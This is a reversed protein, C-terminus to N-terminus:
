PQGGGLLCNQVVIRLPVTTAGHLVLNVRCARLVYAVSVCYKRFVHAYVVSVFCNARFKKLIVDCNCILFM